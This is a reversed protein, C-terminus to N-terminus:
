TPPLTSRDVLRFEVTRNRDEDIVKVRDDPLDYKVAKSHKDGVDQQTLVIRAKPKPEFDARQMADIVDPPGTVTVNQLVPQDEVKYKDLLGDTADVTVPMSRLHFIKDAQRVDVSARISPPVSISVSDVELDPPRRLTKIEKDFHGPSHLADASLEAILPIQGGNEQEIKNLLSMPGRVKVTPPDFTADVNKAAPPSVIKAEREVVSDVMVDLRAPQCALVTVGNDIFIKQNRVLELAPLGHERNKDLSAPVEIRLGQPLMGGRLKTLVDQLRAQPAQLELILNKDQARNLTVAVNPDVSVLEFPVAVDKTTAVQEREAYIWILLTLPVVWALTKLNSIINDRTFRSAFRQWEAAAEDRWRRPKRPQYSLTPSEAM